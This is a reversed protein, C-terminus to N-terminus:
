SAWAALEKMDDDDEEQRRAPQRGAPVSPLQEPSVPLNDAGVPGVQLLEEDLAQQELEELERELEDDDVDQGFADMHPHAAKLAKDAESMITLVATNTNASELAERQMEITSLTGDIQQLQKEFRKKRKLAALAVRRNKTGNQRALAIEADIKKELFTQKKTLMEETERLKQIAEGSTIAKEEKKFGFIKGFTSM